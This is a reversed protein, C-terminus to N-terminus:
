RRGKPPTGNTNGMDIDEDLEKGDDDDDDDDDDDTDLVDANKLLWDMDNVIPDPSIVGDVLYSITLKAGGHLSSLEYPELVTDPLSAGNDDVVPSADADGTDGDDPEFLHQEIFHPLTWLVAAIAAVEDRTPSVIGEAPVFRLLQPFIKKDALPWRYKKQADLDQPLMEDKSVFTLSMSPPAHKAIEAPDDPDGIELVSNLDTVSNYFALGFEFGGMGMVAVIFERSPQDPMGYQVAFFDGEDLEDWPQARYFQAASEFLERAIPESMGPIEMLGTREDKLDTDSDGNDLEDFDLGAKAAFQTFMGMMQDILEFHAALQVQIGLDALMPQMRNMWEADEFVILAPRVKPLKESLGLLAGPGDMPSPPSHMAKATETEIDEDTPAGQVIHTSRLDGNGTDVIMLIQLAASSGVSRLSWAWPADTSKLKRIKDATKKDLM